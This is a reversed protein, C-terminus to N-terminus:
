GSRDLLTFKEFFETIVAKESEYIEGDAPNRYAGDATKELDLYPLRTINDNNLIFLRNKM